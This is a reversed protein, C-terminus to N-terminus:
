LHKVPSFNGDPNLNPMSLILHSSPSLLLGSCSSLGGGGREGATTGGKRGSQLRRHTIIFYM